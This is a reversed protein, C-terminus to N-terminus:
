ALTILDFWVLKGSGFFFLSDALLWSQTSLTTTMRRSLRSPRTEHSAQKNCSWSLTRTRSVMQMLQRKMRRKTRRTTTTTMIMTMITVREKATTTALTPMSRLAPSSNLQPLKLKPTSTKLRLRASSATRTM